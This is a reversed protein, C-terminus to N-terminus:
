PLKHWRKYTACYAAGPNSYSMLCNMKATCRGQPNFQALIANLRVGPLFQLEREGDWYECTCCVKANVRTWPTKQVAMLTESGAQKSHKLM